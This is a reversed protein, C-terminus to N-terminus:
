GECNQMELIWDFYELWQYNNFIYFFLYCNIISVYYGYFKLCINVGGKNGWYGFLGIFIFKIFLIQIYFLYQYKVFVLLFIGQMCVYFVKIFSLFFFVDMFFSSWLDNFVVDFFFSIIGFNLEQLGIVYIDFNFNWNNLQFLDSFDLFFVVLVVNWIVVYISFRRGKLGSLKWLSMVVMMGVCYDLLNVDGLWCIWVLVVRCVVLRVCRVIVFQKEELSWGDVGVEM